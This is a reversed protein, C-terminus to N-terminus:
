DLKNKQSLYPGSSEFSTLAAAMDSLLAVMSTLATAATAMPTAAAVAGAIPSTIAASAGALAVGATNALVSLQGFQSALKGNMSSEQNRYDTGLLMANTADGLHVGESKITVLKAVTAHMTSGVTFELSSDKKLEISTEGNEGAGEKLSGNAETAGRFTMKAQGDTDIAFQVGNFEFFLNHGQEDKEKDERVGGVIFAQSASGAVCLLLVKSGKTGTAKGEPQMGDARLTYSLRDAVGGFANALLCNPFTVTTVPGSGDRYQVDVTYEKYLRSLSRTSDPEIIEKVEGMLLQVTSEQTSAQSTTGMARSGLYSPVVKHNQFM